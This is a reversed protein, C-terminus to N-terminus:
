FTLLSTFSCSDPRPGGILSEVYQICDNLLEFRDKLDGKYKLYTQILLRFKNDIHELQSMLRKHKQPYFKKIRGFYFIVDRVVIGAILEFAVIDDTELADLMDKRYDDLLYRCHYLDYGTFDPLPKALFARALNTLRELEKNKEYIIICNAFMHVTNIKTPFEQEFYKEIQRVPNIFFEIEMGDIFINGRTRTDSKQLIIFIDLDAHRNADGHVHSGTLMIGIVNDDVIYDQIFTNLAIIKEKPLKTELQDENLM